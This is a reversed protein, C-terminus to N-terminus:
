EVRTLRRHRRQVPLAVRYAVVAAALGGVALGLGASTPLPLALVGLVVGAAVAGAALLPVQRRLGAVVPEAVVVSGAVVASGTVVASGGTVPGAAVPGPVPTADALLLYALIFMGEAALAASGTHSFTSLAVAAAVAVSVAWRRGTAAGLVAAVGLGGLVCAIGWSIAWGMPWGVALLGLVIRAPKM